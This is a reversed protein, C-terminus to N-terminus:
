KVTKYSLLTYGGSQGVSVKATGTATKTLTKDSAAKEPSLQYYSKIGVASMNSYVEWDITYITFYLTITGDSNSRATDVIGIRNYSEGAASHFWIKGDAYCPGQENASPAPLKNLDDEKIGTGFYKGITKLADVLTFTEYTIGDKDEYKLTKNSNITYHIHAFNLLQAVNMNASDYDAFFVEAFNSIFVNAKQQEEGSFTMPEGDFPNDIVPSEVTVPGDSMSVVTPEGQTLEDTFKIVDHTTETSAASSETAKTDTCGALAGLMLGASLVATFIKLKKM